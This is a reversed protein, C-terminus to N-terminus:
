RSDRSSYSDRSRSRRHRSRSRSKDKKAKSNGTLAGIVAGGLTGVGPGLLLDGILGGAGAGLFTDRSEHSDSHKRHKKRHHQPRHHNSQPPALASNHPRHHQQPQANYQPQQAYQPNQPYPQQQQQQQQQQPYYNTSHPTYYHQSPHHQSNYAQQWPAQGQPPYANMKSPQPSPQPPRQPPQQGYNASYPPPPGHPAQPHPPLNHSGTFYEQAAM